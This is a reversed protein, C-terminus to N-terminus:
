TKEIVGIEVLFNYAREIHKPILKDNLTIGEDWWRGENIRNFM